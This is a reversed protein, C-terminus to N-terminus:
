KSIILTYGNYAGGNYTFNLTVTIYGVCSFVFGSGASYETDSAGYGGSYQKNVTAAGSNPDVTIVLGHHERSTTPYENIVINNADIKSVTLQDGINNDAWDDRVVTYTGVAEDANFPCTVFVSVDNLLNQYPTGNLLGGSLNSMNESTWVQNDSSTVKNRLVVKAGPTFNAIPKNLATAVDQLTVEWTTTPWNTTKVLTEVGAVVVYTEMKTVKSPGIAKINAKYSSTPNNFYFLVSQPTGDIAVYVGKVSSEDFVSYPNQCSFVILLICFISLIRLNKKM